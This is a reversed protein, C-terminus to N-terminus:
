KTSMEEVGKWYAMKDKFFEALDANFVINTTDGTRTIGLMYNKTRRSHFLLGYGMKTDHNRDAYTTVLSVGSGGIMEGTKENWSWRNRGFLELYVIPSTKSEDGGSSKNPKNRYELGVGPHLFIIQDTPVKMPGIPQGDKDRARGNPGQDAKNLRWSNIFWEWQFQPLGEDRYAHWMALRATSRQLIADIAPASYRTLSAETLQFVRLWAKSEDIAKQCAPTPTAATTGCSDDLIRVVNIEPLAPAMGGDVNWVTVAVPGNGAGVGGAIGSAANRALAAYKDRAAQTGYLEDDQVRSALKQLALSLNEPAPPTKDVLARIEKTLSHSEDSAGYCSSLQPIVLSAKNDRLGDAETKQCQADDARAVAAALLLVATAVLTRMAGDGSLGGVDQFYRGM